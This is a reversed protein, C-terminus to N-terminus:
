PRLVDIERASGVRAATAATSPAAPPAASAPARACAVAGIVEGATRPVHRDPDVALAARPYVLEAQDARGEITIARQARREHGVSDSAVAARRALRGTRRVLGEHPDLEPDVRIWLQDVPDVEEALRDRLPLHGARHRDSNWPEAAGRGLLVVHGTRMAGDDVADGALDTRQRPVVAGVHQLCIIM